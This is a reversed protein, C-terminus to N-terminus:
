RAKIMLRLTDALTIRMTKIDTDLTKAMTKLEPTLKLPTTSALIEAAKADFIALNAIYKDTNFEALKAKAQTLDRATKGTPVVQGEIKTIRAKINAQQKLVNEYRSVIGQRLRNMTAKAKTIKNQTGTTKREEVKTTRALKNEEREVKIEARTDKIEQRLNKINNEEAFAPSISVLLLFTSVIIINKM